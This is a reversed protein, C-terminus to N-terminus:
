ENSAIYDEDVGKIFQHNNLPDNDSWHTKVLVATSIPKSIRNQELVKDITQLDLEIQDLISESPKRLPHSEMLKYTINKKILILDTMKRLISFWLSDWHFSDEGTIRSSDRYKSSENSLFFSLNQEDDDEDDANSPSENSRGLKLSKEREFTAFNLKDEIQMQQSLAQFVSKCFVGGGSGNDENSSQNTNFHNSPNQNPTRPLQSHKGYPM